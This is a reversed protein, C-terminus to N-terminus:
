HSCVSAPIVLSLFSSFNRPTQSCAGQFIKFTLVLIQATQTMRSAFNTYDLVSFNVTFTLKTGEIQMWLDMMKIKMIFLISTSKKGVSFKKGRSKRNENGRSDKNGRRIGPETCFLWVSGQLCGDRRQVSKVWLYPVPTSQTGEGKMHVLERVSGSWSLLALGTYVYVCGLRISATWRHARSWSRFKCQNAHLMIVFLM